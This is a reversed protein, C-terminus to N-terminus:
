DMDSCLSKWDKLTEIRPEMRRGLSIYMWQQGKLLERANTENRGAERKM